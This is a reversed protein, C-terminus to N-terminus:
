RFATGESRRRLRLSSVAHVLRHIADRWASTRRAELERLAQYLAADRRANALRERLFADQLYLEEIMAAELWSM